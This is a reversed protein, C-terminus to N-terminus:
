IPERGIMKARTDRALKSLAIEELQRIRERTVNLILAITELRVGGEDAVDLACTAPLRELEDPPVDPHNFKISLGVVDLYLHHECGVWNCPRPGDVCDARTKPREIDTPYNRDNEEKWLELRRKPERALNETRARVRGSKLLAPQVDATV